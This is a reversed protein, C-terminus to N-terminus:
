DSIRVGIAAVDAQLRWAPQADVDTDPPSPWDAIPGDCCFASGCGALLDCLTLNVATLQVSRADSEDIKCAVRAPTSWQGAVGGTHRGICNGGSDVAGILTCEHLRLTFPEGLDLSDVRLSTDFAGAAPLSLRGDHGLSAAGEAPAPDRDLVCPSGGDCVGGGTRFTTDAGQTSVDILWVVGEDAVSGELAARFLASEPADPSPEMAAIRFDPAEPDNCTWDCGGNASPDGTSCCSPDDPCQTAPEDYFGLLSCGALTAALVTALADKM